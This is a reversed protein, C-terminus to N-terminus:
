AITAPAESVKAKNYVLANLTQGCDASGTIAWRSHFCDLVPYIPIQMPSNMRIPVILGGLYHGGVYNNVRCLVMRVRGPPFPLPIINLMEFQNGETINVM